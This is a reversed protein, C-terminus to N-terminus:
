SGRLVNWAHETSTRYGEHSRRWPIPVTCAWVAQSGTNRTRPSAARTQRRARTDPAWLTNSADPIDEILLDRSRSRIYIVPNAAKTCRRDQSRLADVGVRRPADTPLRSPMCRAHSRWGQFLNGLLTVSSVM